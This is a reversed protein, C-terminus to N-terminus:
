CEEEARSVCPTPPDGDEALRSPQSSGPFPWRPRKGLNPATASMVPVSAVSAALPTLGSLPESRPFYMSFGCVRLVGPYRGRM